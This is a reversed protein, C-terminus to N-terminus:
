GGPEPEVPAGEYLVACPNELGVPKEMAPRGSLAEVIASIPTSVPNMAVAVTEPAISVIGRVSSWDSAGYQAILLDIDGEHSATLAICGQSVLEAALSVEVTAVVKGEADLLDRKLTPRDETSLPQFEACGGLLLGLPLLALILLKSVPPLPPLGGLKDRVIKIILAVLATVCAAVGAVETAEAGPVWAAYRAAVVTGLAAGFGGQGLYTGTGITQRRADM